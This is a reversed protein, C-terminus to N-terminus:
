TKTGKHKQALGDLKGWILFDDGYQWVKVAYGAKELIGQYVEPLAFHNHDVPVFHWWDDGAAKTIDPGYILVDTQCVELWRKAQAFPLHELFHVFSTVEADKTPTAKDLKKKKWVVDAGPFAQRFFEKTREYVEAMGDEVLIGSWKLVTELKPHGGGVARVSAYRGVLERLEEPLAEMLGRYHKQDAKLIQRCQGEYRAVAEVENLFRPPAQEWVGEVPRKTFREPVFVSKGLAAEYRGGTGETGQTGNTGKM